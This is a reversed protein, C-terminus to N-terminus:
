KGADAFLPAGAFRWWRLGIRAVRRIGPHDYISRMGCRIGRRIGPRARDEDADGLCGPLCASVCLRLSASVCLRLSAPLCSLLIAPLCAPLCFCHTLGGPLIGAQEGPRAPQGREHGQGVSPPPWDENAHVHGGVRHHCARLCLNRRHQHCPCPCLSLRHSRHSRLESGICSRAREELARANSLRIESFHVHRPPM